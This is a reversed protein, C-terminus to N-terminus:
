IVGTKRLATPAVTRFRVLWTARGAGVGLLRAAEPVLPRWLNPDPTWGFLEAIVAAALTMLENQRRGQKLAGDVMVVVDLRETAEVNLLGGGAQTERYDVSSPLVFCAPRAVGVTELDALAEISEIAKFGLAGAKLREIVLDLLM